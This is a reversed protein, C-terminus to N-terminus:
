ATRRGDDDGFRALIERAMTRGDEPEVLEAEPGWALVQRVLGYLNRVEFRLIRNGQVDMSAKAGPVLNRALSALSGRFKVTVSRAPHVDYDWPQQRSWRRIDFDTPIGYDPDQPRVKNVTLKRVRSLYFIRSCQRLSDHGVFIWEGRRFAWGYVDVQRTVVENTAVRWYDITVRKRREWAEVLSALSRQQNEAAPESVLEELAAAHPPVGRAGVVLKRLATELDEQMPHAALRATGTGASWVLAAEEPALAIEPLKCSRPSLVYGVPEEPDGLEVTQIAYGLRRLADKDRSFKKEAAQATGGYSEPFRDYIQKRSVPEDQGLLWAALGLLRTEATEKAPSRGRVTM